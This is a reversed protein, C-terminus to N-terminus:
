FQYFQIVNTRGANIKFFIAFHSKLMLNIKQVLKVVVMSQPM